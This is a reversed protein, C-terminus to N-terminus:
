SAGLLRARRGESGEGEGEGRVTGHRAPQRRPAPADALAGALAVACHLGLACLATVQSSLMTSVIDFTMEEATCNKFLLALHARLVCTHAVNKDRGARAQWACTRM